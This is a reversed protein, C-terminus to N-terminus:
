PQVARKCQCLREGMLTRICLMRDRDNTEEHIVGAFDPMGRIKTELSKPEWELAETAISADRADGVRVVWRTNEPDGDIPM